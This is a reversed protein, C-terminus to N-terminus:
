EPKINAAHILKAWKETEDIILRGFDGPRMTMPESGLEVLRARLKTDALGANIEKNLRDVVEAPTYRPAGVGYWSSAEFGPLFEGVAPTDPLAESRAATTVALARLKDAKTYEIAGSLTTFLVQIQGGLLDTMAPGGGRYPVHIMKIGAMTKFLEGGVHQSTGTGPSGYNIKDPNDKAYAIFEPITKAPFSPHLAMVNPQRIIGAVPIIDRIFDFGLKEYLTANIANAPSAFLLTYGDPAAHVVAETAINTGAGPRNEIVFTQGLRESLWQGILRATIDTGAGPAFPVVLRVTRSPYNQAWSTRSVAPLAAAGAALRLLKRRHLKSMVLGGLGSKSALNVM